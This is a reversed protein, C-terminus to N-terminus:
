YWLLKEDALGINEAVLLQPRWIAGNMVWSWAVRTRTYDSQM